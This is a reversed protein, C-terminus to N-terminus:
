GSHRRLAGEESGAVEDKVGLLFTIGRETTPMSRRLPEILVLTAL